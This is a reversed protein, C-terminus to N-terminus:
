NRGIVYPIPTLDKSKYLPHGPRGSKLKILCHPKELVRLVEQDRGGKPLSDGWACVLLHASAQIKLLWKNNEPGIPDSVRTLSSPDASRYAFLNGLLLGGYGWREAYNMCVNCTQDDSYADATSPNMGIFAVMGRSEDWQRLLTYRYKTCDSIVADM